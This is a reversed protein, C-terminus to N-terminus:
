ESLIIKWLYLNSFVLKKKGGLWSYKTAVSNTLIRTLINLTISKLDHGGVISLMKIQFFSLNFFYIINLIIIRYIYM